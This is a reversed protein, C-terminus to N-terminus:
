RDPTTMTEARQPHVKRGMPNAAATIMRHGAPPPGSLEFLVPTAQQRLMVATGVSM